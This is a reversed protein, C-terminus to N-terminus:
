ALLFNAMSALAGDAGDHLPACEKGELFASDTMINEGGLVTLFRAPLTTVLRATKGSKDPLARSHIGQADLRSFRGFPGGNEEM